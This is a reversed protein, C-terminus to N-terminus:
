TGNETRNLIIMKRSFTVGNFKAIWKVDYYEWDISLKDSEKIDSNIDTHFEYARGFSNLDIWDDLTLAKLNWYYSNWTATFWSKKYWSETVVWQRYVVALKNDKKFM